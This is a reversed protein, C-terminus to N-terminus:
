INLAANISYASRMSDLVLFGRTTQQIHFWFCCIFGFSVRVRSIELRLESRMEPAMAAVTLQVKPLDLYPWLSPQTAGFYCLHTCHCTVHRNSNTLHADATHLQKCFDSAVLEANCNQPLATAEIRVVAHSLSSGGGHQLLTLATHTLVYSSSAILDDILLSGLHVTSAEDHPVQM